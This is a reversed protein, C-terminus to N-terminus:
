VKLFKSYENKIVHIYDRINYDEPYRLSLKDLFTVMGLVLRTAVFYEELLKGTDDESM